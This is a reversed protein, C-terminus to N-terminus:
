AIGLKALDVIAITVLADLGMALTTTTAATIGIVQEASEKTAVAVKSSGVTLGSAAVDFNLYFNGKAVKVVACSGLELPLLLMDTFPALSRAARVSLDFGAINATSVTDPDDLLLKNRAHELLHLNAAIM